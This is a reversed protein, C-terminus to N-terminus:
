RLNGVSNAVIRVKALRQGTIGCNAAKPKLKCMEAQVSPTWLPKDIVFINAFDIYIGTIGAFATTQCGDITQQPAM